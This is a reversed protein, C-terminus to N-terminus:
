DLFPAADHISELYTTMLWTAIVAIIFLNIIEKKSVRSVKLTSKDEGGKLWFYWGYVGLIVYVVQLGMDAFLRANWFLIIFFINNLLGIPWNWINEKVTLWVCIAGTVFGFVETMDFSLMKTASGIILALSFGGLVLWELLKKNKTNM